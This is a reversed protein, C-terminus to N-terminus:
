MDDLYLTELYKNCVDMSCSCTIATHKIREAFQLEKVTM